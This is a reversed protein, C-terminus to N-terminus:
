LMEMLVGTCAQSRRSRAEGSVCVGELRLLPVCGSCPDCRRPQLRLGLHGEGHLRFGCPGPSCSMTWYPERHRQTSRLSINGQRHSLDSGPRLVASHSTPQIKPEISGKAM